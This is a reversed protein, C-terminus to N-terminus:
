QNNSLSKKSEEKLYPDHCFTLEHISNCHILNILSLAISLPSYPIQLAMCQLQVKLTITICHNYMDLHCSDRRGYDCSIRVPSRKMSVIFSNWDIEITVALSNILQYKTHM